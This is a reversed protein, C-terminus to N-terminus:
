ANLVRRVSVVAFDESPQVVFGCDLALKLMRTNERLIEGTLVRTGRARCYAIIREMLMRGLHHGTEDSRVAAAFEATENHSDCVARVVGHIVTSGGEETCAVFAMERDYDIQVYRALQTHDPQRVMAFFRMRVDEPTMARFLEAHAHEDEPRIPRITLCRGDWEIREELEVPYPRIALPRRTGPANLQIAIPHLVARGQVVCLQASFACIAEVSCLCLSVAALTEIWAAFEGASSATLQALRELATCALAANIPLLASSAQGDPTTFELFPGFTRDDRLTVTLSPANAAECPATGTTGAARPQVPIGFQALLSVAEDEHLIHGGPSTTDLLRQQVWALADRLEAHHVPLSPPTQALRVRAIRYRKMLDRGSVQPSQLTAVAELLTDIDALRIFGAREFAADYALHNEGAAPDCCIFVPKCRVCARAASMFKRAARVHDICVMVALTAADSALYDLLDGCDIDAQEGLAVVRSLRLGRASAFEMAQQAIRGSQCVWAVGSPADKASSAVMLGGIERVSGPVFLADLNRVTM